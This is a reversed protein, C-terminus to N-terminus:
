QKVLRATWASSGGLGMLAYAGSPLTSLDLAITGTATAVPVDLVTRGDMGRVLVRQVPAGNTSTITIRDTAPNPSIRVPYADLARVGTGSGVTLTFDDFNGYQYAGCPGFGNLSGATFGDSGWPGIVRMRYSGDPTGPPITIDFSYTYNPDGGVYSYYLNESDQFSQDSNLDVWVACGTWNGSVVTMPEAVGPVVVTSWATQDSLACDTNTWNIEGIVVSQNQWSFCGNAFTPSCYQAQAAWALLIAALSLPIHTKMLPSNSSSSPLRGRSTGTM